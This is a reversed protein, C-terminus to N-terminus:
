RQLAATDPSEAEEEMMGPLNRSKQFVTSTAIYKRGYGQASNQSSSNSLEGWLGQGGSHSSCKPSCEWESGFLHACVPDVRGLHLISAHASVCAYEPNRHTPLSPFQISVPHLYM